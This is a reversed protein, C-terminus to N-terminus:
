VRWAPDIRKPDFKTGPASASRITVHDVVAALVRRRADVDDISDWAATLNPADLMPALAADTETAALARQRREEIPQRTRLYERVTLEGRGAAEALLDLEAQLAAPDEGSRSSTSARALSRRMQPSDLAHLVAGVVERETREAQIATKGCGRNGPGSPCIYRRTGNTRRSHHMVAGCGERGCRIMGGLLSTPPRGRGRQRANGVVARLREHEDRTIIAPWTGESVIEDHHVRLGAIRPGSLMTRLTMISWEGGGASCIGRANWDGALTRLSEGALVRDTAERVLKAEAGVLEKGDRTYGFARRGGGSLQGALAAQARQRRLRESKQESEHRAVAGAVRAVMRGSATSLDYEGASCTAVAAGTANVLDIFGELELPSRHLRDPHWAVVAGFRGAKIGELMRDYGPRPKGSYASIDNDVFVEGVAWGRTECLAECDERQRDVGLGGGGRDQSIRCYVAARVGVGKGKTTM